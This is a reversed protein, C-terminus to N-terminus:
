TLKRDWKNIKSQHSSNQSDIKWIGSIQIYIQVNLVIKRIISIEFSSVLDLKEHYFKGQSLRM